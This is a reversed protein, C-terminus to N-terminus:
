RFRINIKNLNAKSTRLTGGWIWVFFCPINLPNLLRSVKYSLNMVINKQSYVEAPTRYGLSQPLRQQNDYDLFRSLEEKAQKVTQYEKLYVEEDKLTRWFQEIFINDLARRRGDM